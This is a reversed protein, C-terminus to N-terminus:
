LHLDDGLHPRLTVADAVLEKGGSTCDLLTVMLVGNVVTFEGLMWGTGGGMAANAPPTKTQNANTDTVQGGVIVSYKACVTNNNADAHWTVM